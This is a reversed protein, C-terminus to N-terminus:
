ASAATGYYEEFAKDRQEITAYVRWGGAEVNSEAHYEVGDDFKVKYKYVDPNPGSQLLICKRGDPSIGYLNTLAGHHFKSM